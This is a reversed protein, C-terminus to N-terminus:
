LNSHKRFHLFFNLRRKSIEFHFKAMEIELGFVIKLDWFPNVQSVWFVRRLIVECASCTAEHTFLCWLTHRLSTAYPSNHKTLYLNFLWSAPQWNSSAMLSIHRTSQKEDVILLYRYQTFRMKRIILYM